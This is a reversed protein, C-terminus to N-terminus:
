FTTPYHRVQLIIFITIFLIIVCLCAVVAVGTIFSFPNVIQLTSVPQASLLLAEVNIKRKDEQFKCGLIIFTFFQREIFNLCHKIGKCDKCGEWCRNCGGGETEYYGDPCESRCEGM